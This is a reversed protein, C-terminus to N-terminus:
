TNRQKFRKSPLIINGQDDRMESVFGEQAMKDWYDRSSTGPAGPDHVVLKGGGFARLAALAARTKGTGDGSFGYVAAYKGREAVVDATVGPLEVEGEIKDNM